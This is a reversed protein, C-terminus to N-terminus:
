MRKASKGLVKIAASVGAGKSMKYGEATFLDEMASLVLLVNEPTSSYGMMGIRWIKGKFPGLGGGVEINYDNLLKGRLKAEDLTSPIQVTTLSCARHGAQAQLTLGMGELGAQLAAGNKLHREERKELGEEVVLALSEHMAYVM